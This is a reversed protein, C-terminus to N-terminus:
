KTRFLTGGSGGIWIEREDRISMAYLAAGTRPSIEEWTDGGDTTRFVTGAGGIILGFHETYFQIKQFSQDTYFPQHQWSDGGDTTRLITGRDGVCWGRLSDLFLIDRLNAPSNSQQEIWTFEGDICKMILGDNGCVWGTLSDVFDVGHMDYGTGPVKIVTWTLGADRTRMAAPYGVNWGNLSDIFAMDYLNWQTHQRAPFWSEGGDTTRHINGSADSIWAREDDLWFMETAAPGTTTWTEGGDFTRELGSNRAAFGETATVMYLESIAVSSGTTTSTWHDGDDLSYFIGGHPGVAIIREGTVDVSRVYDGNRRFTFAWSKGGDTTRYVVGGIGIAVAEERSTWRMLGLGTPILQKEWSDGEDDSIFLATEYGAGTYGGASIVIRGDPSRSIDSFWSDYGGFTLKSSIDEWTEGFDSTQYVAYAGSVWGRGNDMFYMGNIEQWPNSLRTEWTKGGDRSVALQYYDIVAWIDNPSVVSLLNIWGGPASSITQWTRGGNDTRALFGSRGSVLGTKADMFTVEFLQARTGLEVQSWTAGADRTVLLTGQDGCAFARNRSVFAVDNLGAETPLPALLEWTLEPTGPSGSSGVPNPSDSCGLSLLFIIFLIVAFLSVLIAKMVCGM